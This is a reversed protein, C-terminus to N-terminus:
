CTIVLMLAASLLRDREFQYSYLLVCGTLLALGLAFLGLRALGSLDFRTEGRFVFRGLIAATIAAAGTILMFYSLFYLM